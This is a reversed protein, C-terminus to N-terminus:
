ANVFDILPYNIKYGQDSNEVEGRMVGILKHIITCRAIM